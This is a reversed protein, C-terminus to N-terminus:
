REDVSGGSVWLGCLACEETPLSVVRLLADWVGALFNRSQRSGVWNMGCEGLM